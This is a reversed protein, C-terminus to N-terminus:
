KALQILSEVGKAGLETWTKWNTYEGTSWEAALKIAAAKAAETDERRTANIVNHWLEQKKATDLEVKGLTEAIEAAQRKSLNSEKAITHWLNDDTENRESRSDTPVDDEWRRRVNDIWEKVGQQKLLEKQLPTLEKSTSTEEKINETEAKIKSAEAKNLLQEGAARVAEIKNAKAQEKVAAIDLYSPAQSQVGKAGQGMAGAGASGGGGAGGGLILGPSLGAAKADAVKSELSNAQTTAELLGLSREHAADAAMEGYEYNQQRAEADLARQSEEQALILEKSDKVQNLGLVQKGAKGVGKGAKGLLKGYGKIAKKFIGM